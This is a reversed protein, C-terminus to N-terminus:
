DHSSLNRGLWNTSLTQRPVGVKKYSAFVGEPTLPVGRAGVFGQMALREAIAKFTLNEVDRLRCVNRLLELQDTNYRRARLM